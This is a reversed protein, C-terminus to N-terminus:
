TAAILPQSTAATPATGPNRHRVLETSARPSAGDTRSHRVHEQAAPDGLAPWRIWLRIGLDHRAAPSRHQDALNTQRRVGRPDEQFHDPPLWQDEPGAFTEFFAWTRRALIRLRRTETATLVQTPRTRIRSIRAAVEPSLMWLILVPGAASLARPHCVILVLAIAAAGLPAAAMERWVLWRRSQTAILGRGTHAASTWELLHKRTICMRALTRVIADCLVAAQHLLFIIEFFWFGAASRLARGLGAFDPPVTTPWATSVLRGTLDTLGPTAPVLLVLVTWLWVPHPFCIWAVVLLAVLSPALLSRRLNDLIKWRAIISLRTRTRGGRATPVRRGLWPVLQWDGRAWRHLRRTYALYHSPYDEVLVVDTVLGARGHVGEFLDHSLLTGEPIRGSLSREFAEVDYIGKGTYVGEGFLDQYLDSVARTYPDLGDGGAFM